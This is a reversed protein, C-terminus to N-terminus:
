EDLAIEASALTSEIVYDVEDDSMQPYLPITVIKDLTQWGENTPDVVELIPEIDTFSWLPPYHIQTAVNRKSMEQIFVARNGRLRIPYIHHAHQTSGQLLQTIFLDEYVLFNKLYTVAIEERREHLEDARKLQSRALAANIDSVRFNYGWGQGSFRGHSVADKAFCYQKENHTLFAGMEGGTIHKAPHLSIIAPSQVWGMNRKLYHAHDFLVREDSWEEHIPYGAYSVPIIIDVDDPVTENEFCFSYPNPPYIYAKTGTTATTATITARFTLGSTAIVNNQKSSVALAGIILATTGSNCVVAYKYGTYRALEEELAECEPGDGAIWDSRLVKEVAEIDEETVCHKTYHPIKM